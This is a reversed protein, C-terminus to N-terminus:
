CRTQRAVGLAEDGAAAQTHARRQPPLTPDHVFERFVPPTAKKQRAEIIRGGNKKIM